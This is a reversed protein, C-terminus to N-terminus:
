KNESYNIDNYTTYKKLTSIMSIITIMGCIAIILLGIPAKIEKNNM